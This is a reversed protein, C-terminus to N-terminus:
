ETKITKKEIPFIIKIDSFFERALDAITLLICTYPTSTPCAERLSKKPMIWHIDLFRVVGRKPLTKTKESNAANKSQM